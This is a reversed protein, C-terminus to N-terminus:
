ERSLLILRPKTLVDIPNCFRLVDTFEEAKVELARRLVAMADVLRFSFYTAVKLSTPHADNTSQSM